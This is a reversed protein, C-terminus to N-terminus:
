KFENLDGILMIKSEKLVNSVFPDKNKIRERFEKPEFLVYNIERSLKKELKRINRILEKENINGILFLDIDSKKNAKGTAFSGYIFATKVEGITLLNKQLVKAVGETKLIISKLENYIPMKKNVAYYKTNGKLSSTLLNIDELNLLERRVANINEEITRAIERIYMEKDPNMMFLTLLKLRTKSTLLRQLM